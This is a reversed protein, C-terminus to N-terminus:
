VSRGQARGNSLPRKEGVHDLLDITLIEFAMEGVIGVEPHKRWGLRRYFATHELTLLYLQPVRLAQAEEMVRLTLQTGIGRQRALPAVWLSTLWPTLHRIEELDFVELSVSGLLMDGEHAVLTTPIRRRQTHANLESRAM